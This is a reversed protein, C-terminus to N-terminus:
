KSERLLVTIDNVTSKGLSKQNKDRLFKLPIRSKISFFYFLSCRYKFMIRDTWKLYLGKIFCAIKENFLSCM